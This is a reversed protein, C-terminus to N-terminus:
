SSYNGVLDQVKKLGHFKTIELLEKWVKPFIDEDNFSATGIEIINAGAMMLQAADEGSSVGGIGILPVGLKANYLDRIAKVALPLVNPGSMGGTVNGLKPKKRYVDIAMSPVTNIAALVDAGAKIASRGVEVYDSILALKVIIIVSPNAKRVSLVAKYTEKPSTGLSLGGEKINACSINIEIASIDAGALHAAIEGFDEVTHASINVIIPLHYKRWLPLEKKVFDQVAIGELGIANLMGGKVECVRPVSNGIWFETHISKPIFGGINNSNLYGKKLTELSLCGCANLLPYELVLKSGKKNVIEVRGPNKALNKVSCPKRRIVSESKIKKWEIWEADIAPGDVCIHKVIGDKGFIACGKCSGIGCAMIEEMIVLCKIKHMSAMKAVEKLMIKPGCAIIISNKSNKNKLEEKLLDTVFGKFDIIRKINKPKVKFNLFQSEDKAGLLITTDKKHHALEKSLLMIGASGIGGGVLIFNNQFSKIEIPNGLPGRIEICDGKKLKSYVETNKGVAKFIISITKKSCDTVSFPRSFFSEESLPKLQIFQGAKFSIKRPLLLKLEFIGSKNRTERCSIARAEFTSKM